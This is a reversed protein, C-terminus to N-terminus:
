ATTAVQPKQKQESLAGRRIRATKDSPKVTETNISAQPFRTGPMPQPAVGKAGRTATNYSKDAALISPTERWHFANM